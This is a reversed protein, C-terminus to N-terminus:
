KHIYRVLVTKNVKKPAYGWCTSRQKVKFIRTVRPNDIDGVSRGDVMIVSSRLLTWDLTSWKTSPNRVTETKMSPSKM